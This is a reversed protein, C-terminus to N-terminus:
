SPISTSLEYQAYYGIETGGPLYVGNFTDGEPPVEKPFRGTVPPFMRLGEKICAQLYPLTRAEADQIPSSISGNDVAEDIEAILRWLVRPTTILFLITARIATATTDSGALRRRGTDARINVASKASVSVYVQLVAESQAEERSLGHRLFSGLMDQKVKMNDGFREAVREEAIAILRGFGFKDNGSPALLKVLSSEELFTYVEPLETMLLLGFMGKEVTKIYDYKDEDTILDGFPQDFALASIVDLTFYQATRGFDMQRGPEEETCVYKREILSILDHIREDIESELHPNEKGAYGAAMKKRLEDHKEEQRESFVNDVGPTLRSGAYWQGRRYPSRPANIRRVLEPDSTIVQNPGVRVLPGYKLNAEFYDLHIRTGIHGMLLWLRSFAALPPGPIHSLRRYSRIANAITWLALTLVGAFLLYLTYTAM